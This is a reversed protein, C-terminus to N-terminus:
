NDAIGCPGIEISQVSLSGNTAVLGIGGTRYECEDVSLEVDEVIGRLTSGEAEIVITYLKDVGWDFKTRALVIRQQDHAKVLQLFGGRAFVLAYYRNIGRVRFAVGVPSGMNVAFGNFTLKYNEWEKTGYSVLGEGQDQAVWYKGYVDFSDAAKVFAHKYFYLSGESGKEQLTLRPSHGWGLSELWIIGDFEMHSHSVSLGVSQIPRGGLTSPIVWQLVGEDGPALRSPHSVLSELQDDFSFVRIMIRVEVDMWGHPDARVKAEVIQGPYLLPSAVLDYLPMARVERPSFSPTAVEVPNALQGKSVLHIALGTAGTDNVDQHITVSVSGTDENTKAQFGQVGGPLSFHFRAGSKPILPQKEGKLLKGLNFIDYALSTANNISYGADASSILAQDAVPGRWDFPSEFASLGHMIAVLCGVNGANSDTDWGSTCIIHMAEDFSHGGYIFAMIMTAHNPVVPCIGHFKDYGYKDEIMQRTTLWDSNEESWKRVDGVVTAILSQAPIAKLGVDLLHGVDSSLFAASEMSAWLRAANVAEGDHSVSAGAEALSAALDPAGPAMMAWGDIFIQAGVQEAITQGNTEIAGSLPAHIGNRLNVYATHETMIGKGGWFFVSRCYVINNLWITLHCLAVGRCPPQM